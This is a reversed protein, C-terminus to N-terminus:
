QAPFQPPPANAGPPKVKFDSDLYKSLTARPLEFTLGNYDGIMPQDAGRDLLHIAYEATKAGGASKTEVTIRYSKTPQTTPNKELYKDVRLPHLATLLGNSDTEDADTKVDGAALVWASRTPQTVPLTFKDSPRPTAPATTPLFPVGAGGEKRREVLVETHTAPKTAPQTTSPIDTAISFHSVEEPKLDLLKKDRLDIPKKQFSDVISANARAVFPSDSLKVYVHKKLLDFDGFTVTTMAPQSAPQTVPQTAPPQTSFSVTLTPTKMADSAETADDVFSTARLSTLQSLLDTVASAEAPIQQPATVAWDMGSKELKLTPTDKAAILLQRIDFSPVDLLKLQRFSSAPKDVKDLVEAPVIEIESKGSVKAYVGNGAGQKDGFQVQITKDNTTLDVTFQPKDLGLKSGAAEKPDLQSNSKMSVLSDVLANVDSSEALANVPELLRWDKGTKQLVTKKGSADTIVLKSVDSSASVDVLKHEESKKPTTDQDRTFFVYGGLLIVLVLLVVTTKFNM